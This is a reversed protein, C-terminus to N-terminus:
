LIPLAADLYLLIYALSNTPVIVPSVCPSTVPPTVPSKNASGSTASLLVFIRSFPVVVSVVPTTVSLQNKPPRFAASPVSM